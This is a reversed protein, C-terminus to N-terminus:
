QSHFCLDELLVGECESFGKAIILDGRAASGFLIIQEPRAIDVIKKVLKKLTLELDISM